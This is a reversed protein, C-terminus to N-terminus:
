SSLTMSTIFYSVNDGYKFNDATREECLTMNNFIMGGGQASVGEVKCIRCRYRSTHGTHHILDAIGPIDGGVFLLDVYRKHSQDAVNVILGKDELIALEELTPM